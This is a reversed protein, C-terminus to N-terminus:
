SHTCVCPSEISINFFVVLAIKHWCVSVTFLADWVSVLQNRCRREPSLSCLQQIINLHSIVPQYGDKASSTPPIYMCM